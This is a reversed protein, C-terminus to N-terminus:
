KGKKSKLSVKDGGKVVFYYIVAGLFHLFIMVLVWVVKEYDKKFDRKLCDSMMWLWFLFLFVGILIAIIGFSVFMGFGPMDVFDYTDSSRFYGFANVISISSLIAFILTIIKSLKNM